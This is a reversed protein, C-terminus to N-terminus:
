KIINFIQTLFLYINLEINVQILLLGKLPSLIRWFEDCCYKYVQKLYNSGQKNTKLLLTLLFFSKAGRILESIVEM